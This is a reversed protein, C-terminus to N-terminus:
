ESKAFWWRANDSGINVGEQDHTMNGEILSQAVLKRERSFVVGLERWGVDKTSDLDQFIRSPSFLVVLFFPGHSVHTASASMMQKPLDTLAIRRAVLDDVSKSALLLELM